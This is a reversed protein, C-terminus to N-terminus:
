EHNKELAPLCPHVAMIPVVHDLPEAKFKELLRHKFDTTAQQELALEMKMGKDFHEFKVSEAGRRESAPKKISEAKM